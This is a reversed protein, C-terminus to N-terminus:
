YPKLEFVFIGLEGVPFSAIEGRTLRQLFRWSGQAERVRLENWSLTHNSVGGELNSYRM